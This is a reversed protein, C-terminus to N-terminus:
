VRIIGESCSMLTLHFSLKGPFSQDPGPLSSAAQCPQFLEQLRLLLLDMRPMGEKEETSNMKAFDESVPM